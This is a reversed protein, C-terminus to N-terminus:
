FNGWKDRAKQRLLKILDLKNRILPICIAKLHAAGVEWFFGSGYTTPNYTSAFEENELCVNGFMHIRNQTSMPGTCLAFHYNDTAGSASTYYQASPRQCVTWIGMTKSRALMMLLAMESKIKEVENKGEKGCITDPASLILGPLEEVLLLQLTDNNEPTQRFINYFTHILKVSNEVGTAFNEVPVIGAYDGSNKPDCIFIELPMDLLLLQYLLWLLAVSKGSGSAGCIMGHCHTRIDMRIEGICDTEVDYGVLIDYSGM